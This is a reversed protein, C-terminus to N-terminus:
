RRAGAAPESGALIAEAAAWDAPGDINVHATRAVVSGVVRAGFLSGQEVVVESRTVYVSGDRHFAPPLDQRRAIPRDEGTSLRLLGEADAVFVWHPNFTPPVPAVTIVTDAGTRTLLAICDDIEGPLRFPVTPQLLCVADYRDGLEQLALLAHRVVPGMATDDTALEAPRIFPVELGAQRGVEAIEPDDTSLLVRTLRRAALAAAATYDLLPRGQLLRVNKRAIGKSGARAPVLGLVRPAAM